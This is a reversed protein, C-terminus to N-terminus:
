RKAFHSCIANIKADLSEANLRLRCVGNFVTSPVHTIYWTIEPDNHFEAGPLCGFISRSASLNADIAAIATSPSLDRLIENM